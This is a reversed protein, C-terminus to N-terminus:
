RLKCSQKSLLIKVDGLGREKWEGDTFRFLKARHCYLVEEQEEGTVVDVKDPLPIVPKFYINDDEEEFYSEDTEEDGPGTSHKRPSRPTFEFDHKQPSGFVFKDGSADVAPAQEVQVPTHLKFTFGSKTNTLNVPDDNAAKGFLFSTTTETPKSTAPSGTAPIGFSFTLGGTDLSVGKNTEKKPVSDDKPTECSACYIKAADNFIYCMKCEWMGTKPKFADGWGTVVPKTEAKTQFVNTQAPSKAIGFSFQSSECEKKAVTNNKPTECAVCFNQKGENQIYCNKCEWSGSKPKFKDGWGSKSTVPSVPEPQSPKSKKESKKQKVPETVKTGVIQNNDDLLAQTNKVATLFNDTINETKFKVAFTESKLEGEAFDKAAWTVATPSKKMKEFIM